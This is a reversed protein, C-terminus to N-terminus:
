LTLCASRSGFPCHTLTSYRARADCSFRFYRKSSCYTRPNELATLSVCNSVSKAGIFWPYFTTLRGHRNGRCYYCRGMLPGWHFHSWDCHLQILSRRLGERRAHVVDSESPLFPSTPKIKTSAWFELLIITQHRSEVPQLIAIFALILVIHTPVRM